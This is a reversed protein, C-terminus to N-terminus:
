KFEKALDCVDSSLLDAVFLFGYCFGCCCFSAVVFPRLESLGSGNPFELNGRADDSLVVEVRSLTSTEGRRASVLDTLRGCPWWKVGPTWMLGTDVHARHGRRGAARQQNARQSAPLSGGRRVVCVPRPSISPVDSPSCYGAIPFATRSPEAIGCVAVREGLRKGV